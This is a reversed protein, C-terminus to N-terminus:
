KKTDLELIPPLLTKVGLMLIEWEANQFNKNALWFSFIAVQYFTWREVNM